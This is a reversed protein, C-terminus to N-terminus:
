KEKTRTGHEPAFAFVWPLASSAYCFERGVEWFRPVLITLPSCECIM